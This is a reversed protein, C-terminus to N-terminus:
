FPFYSYPLMCPVMEMQQQQPYWSQMGQMGQMGMWSQMQYYDQELSLLPATPTSVKGELEEERWVSSDRSSQMNLGSSYCPLDAPEESKFSTHEIPSAQTPSAQNPNPLALQLDESTMQLIRQKKEKNLRRKEQNAIQKKLQNVIKLVMQEEREKKHYKIKSILSNFRNKIMHETRVENLIPVLKCWRKGFEAVFKFISLDEELTWNGHKKKDDLHNLWRERCHRPSKFLEYNSTYFFYKSVENWKGQESAAM